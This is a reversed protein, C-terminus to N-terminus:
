AAQKQKLRDRRAQQRQASALRHKECSVLRRALRMSWEAKQSCFVCRGAAKQRRRWDQAAAHHGSTGPFLRPRAM